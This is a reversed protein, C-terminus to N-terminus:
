RRWTPPRFCFIKKITEKQEDVLLQVNVNNNPKLNQTLSWCKALYGSKQSHYVITAENVCFGKLSIRPQVKM